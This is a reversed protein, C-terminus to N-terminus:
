PHLLQNTVRKAGHRSTKALPDQKAANKMVDDLKCFFQNANLSRYPLNKIKYYGKAEVLKVNFNRTNIVCGRAIRISNKTQHKKRLNGKKKLEKNYKKLQLYHIFHNYAPILLSMNNAMEPNVKLYAYGSLPQSFSASDEDLNPCWISLGLQAMLRSQGSQANKLCEIQSERIPSNALGSNVAQKIKKTRRFCWYFEELTSLDPARPVLDQKLLGWLIKIHVFLPHLKLYAASSVSKHTFLQSSLGNQMPQPHQKPSAKVVATKTISKRRKPPEGGEHTRSPNFCSTKIKPTNNISSKEEKQCFKLHIPWCEQHPKKLNITAKLSGIKGALKEIISEYPNTPASITPTSYCHQTQNHCLSTSTSLQTACSLLTWSTHKNIHQMDM